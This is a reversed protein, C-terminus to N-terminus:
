RAPPNVFRDVERALVADRLKGVWALVAARREPHDAAGLEDMVSTPSRRM